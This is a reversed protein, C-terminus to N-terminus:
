RLWPVITENGGRFKNTSIRQAIIGDYNLVKLLLLEVYYLGCTLVVDLYQAPLRDIKERKKRNSHVYSNRIDTFLYPFDRLERNKKIIDEFQKQYHDPLQTSCNIIYLLMRIKDSARLDDSGESSIIKKEEIIIWRFLLEFANQLLIISGELGGSRKNASLYWHIILYLTNKNYDDLCLEYFEKWLAGIKLDFQQPLWSDYYSHYPEQQRNNYEIWKIENEVSGTTFFPTIQRGALFSLFIGFNSLILEARKANAISYDIFRLEGVHTLGFGGKSKIVSWDHIKSPICDLIIEFQNTSFNLRGCISGNVEKSPRINSGVIDIFNFIHFNFKDGLLERDDSFFKIFPPNILGKIIHKKDQTQINSTLICGIEFGDIQFKLSNIDEMQSAFLQSVGLRHDEIMFELGRKPFWHFSIKILCQLSKDQDYLINVEGKYIELPANPQDMQITPVIRVPLTAVYARWNDTNNQQDNCM